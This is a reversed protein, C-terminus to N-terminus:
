AVPEFLSAGLKNEINIRDINAQLIRNYDTKRRVASSITQAIKRRLYILGYASDLHKRQYRHRREVLWVRSLHVAKTTQKRPILSKACASHEEIIRDEFTAARRMRLRPDEAAREVRVDDFKAII